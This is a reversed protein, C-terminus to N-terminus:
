KNLHKLVIGTKKRDPHHPLKIQNLFEIANQIENASRLIQCISNKRHETSINVNRPKTYLTRLYLNNIVNYKLIGSYQLKRNITAVPNKIFQM